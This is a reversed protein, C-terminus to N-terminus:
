AMGVWSLSTHYGLISKEGFRWLKGKLCGSCHGVRGTLVLFIAESASLVTQGSCLGNRFCVGANHSLSIPGRPAPLVTESSGHSSRFCAGATHSLDISRQADYWSRSPTCPMAMARRSRKLSFLRMTYAPQALAGPTCRSLSLVENRARTAM